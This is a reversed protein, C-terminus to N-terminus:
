TWRAHLRDRDALEIAGGLRLTRVGDGSVETRIDLPGATAPVHADTNMAHDEHDGPPRARDANRVGDFTRAEPSYRLRLL